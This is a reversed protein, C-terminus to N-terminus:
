DRTVPSTHCLRRVVSVLRERDDKLICASAGSALAVAKTEERMTGSLIVFPVNPHKRAALALASLGDLRPTNLDSIILDPKRELESEFAEKTVVAVIQCAIQHSRLEWETLEMDDRNDDVMIIRLAPQKRLGPM